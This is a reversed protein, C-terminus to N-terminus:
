VQARREVVDVIEAIAEDCPIGNKQSGDRYRFSVTGANMDDDGVIVMFPIKQKQANRIKKQMRDSSSDVEVRLGKEKAQAAWKELYEVHAEGVPIGVAQVPALWAPFAGAYHELLVGFFREISGFLARHIMVPQQRSGDAATYELNFRKPQNFDVQITSMQWSRGIADKAQVSIKPGYYAAGGPDPVLPLNQKEAAQRLAETAEEWDEDTGIFKDSDDRTSLELEFETLGYDRLLDLVFTLLTDLEQPMQEKTCYIHSDDQTFGRSRTLGHVVGSKEYRYVTGFEFLRLPLERYSRGRSKYILNHMPCNMAKLRYNQEDFQIPPFMGDAYHPLHGSIEFLHEKSIHPTNVFEYGSAEHRKRSYTEMEKRIVGGKPHFVALGPGLEEPFSFLDLEAGLKRHDRKEAEALFELYQKLEDKSPWATGYIRQLQPNKESGRWYAAASRMLKFAPIHRTSPLHPGRCLDKWCLEGTKADLNDYITLEAGGVEADAGEAAQAANGKLGILELKYPEGALEERAAEDTTVRRSFRQGRKVIEQMKKEIRKLDEPTFPEAVDFDYYFGDRIPPGIGLKAEPFIEQVAQAMVHATSHRLINLGDPSSIEVGEVTEGDQVEYTLDKLEGNVRAAVISREGAFLDAATTGTTVVREERESDRQIIVRVDSM